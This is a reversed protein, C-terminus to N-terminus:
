RSRRWGNPPAGHGALGAAMEPPGLYAGDRALFELPPDQVALGALPTKGLAFTVAAARAPMPPFDSTIRGHYYGDRM